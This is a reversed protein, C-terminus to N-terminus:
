GYYDEAEKPTATRFGRYHQFISNATSESVVAFPHEATFTVGFTEFKRNQREMKLLVQKEEPQPDAVVSEDKAPEAPKWEPFLAFADQLTIKNTTLANVLDEKKTAEGLDVSAKDALEVLQKNTLDKLEM